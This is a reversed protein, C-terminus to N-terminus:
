GTFATPGKNLLPKENYWHREQTINQTNEPSTVDHNRTIYEDELLRSTEMKYHKWKELIQGNVTVNKM